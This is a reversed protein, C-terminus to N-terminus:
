LQVPVLPALQPNILLIFSALPLNVCSLSLLEDVVSACKEVLATVSLYLARLCSQM